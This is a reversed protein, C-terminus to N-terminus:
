ELTSVDDFEHKRLEALKIKAKLIEHYLLGKVFCEGVKLRDIIKLVDSSYTEIDVYDELTMEYNPDKKMKLIIQLKVEITFQNSPPLFASLKDKLYHNISSMPEVLIKNFIQKSLIDSIRSTRAHDLRLQCTECKWPTKIVLPDVPLMFGECEPRICKLASINSGFETPDLCRECKCLFNKSYALHVRRQQTGWLFKTYSNFIQEGKAIFSSARVAM